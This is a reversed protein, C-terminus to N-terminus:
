RFSCASISSVCYRLPVRTTKRQRMERLASAWTFPSSVSTRMSSGAAATSAYRWRLFQVGPNAFRLFRWSALTALSQLNSPSRRHRPCPRGRSKCESHNAPIAAPMGEERKSQSRVVRYSIVRRAGDGNIKRDGIKRSAQRGRRRPPEERQPREADEAAKREMWNRTPPRRSANRHSDSSITSQM